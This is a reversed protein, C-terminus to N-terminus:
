QLISQLLVQLMAYYAIKPYFNDDFPTADANPQGLDTEYWSIKDGTGWITFGLCKGSDLAARLATKYNSAQYLFRDSSTKSSLNFDFEEILFPLGFYNTTKIIDEYDIPEGKKIHMHLGVADVLNQNRLRDVIRKTQATNQGNFSHNNTDSYVLISRPALKRAIQFALDIYSDDGFSKEFYDGGNGYRDGLPENVVNIIWGDLNGYKTKYHNLIDTIHKKLVDTAVEKSYGKQRVWDPVEGGWILHQITVRMNNKIALEVQSDPWGWNINGETKERRPWNFTATGANFEYVQLNPNVDPLLLTGIHFDNLAAITRLYCRTWGWWKKGKEAIMLPIPGALDRYQEPLLSPALNYVAVVYPNGNKDKLAEYTIGQAVQEATIEIGAMKMANVFQPIPANPNHLDFLEPNTVRPDPV